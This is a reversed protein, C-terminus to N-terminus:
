TKVWQLATKIYDPVILLSAKKDLLEFACDAKNKLMYQQVTLSVRGASWLGDCITQNSNYMAIEFTRVVNDSDAFVEINTASTYASYRAVCNAQYDGDNDRIVATKIGLLIALDLYRKFSTGGVSIIHVDNDEPSNGIEKQYFNEMLIFEADGEVLIVKKSLVFELINNDPAKMFFKATGEDLDNLLIPAGSNSNVLISKRLDLRTSIMNNHTAIILQKNDTGEIRKVLKKMNVHSLHNEPEEILVCDLSREDRLAFETKIFCQKGRGKNEITVGDEALTLDSELNSKSDTKAIFDYDGTRSNLATLHNNKYDEKSKRYENKHKSQEVEDTSSQYVAKIYERAAYDNSMKSDDILIHSVFQRYGTYAHDAFTKFTIGYYEFPFNSDPQALIQQIENSLEDKPECVMMLGDCMANDSNNRGNTDSDGSDSLYVEIWLRPLNAYTKTGNLFNSIVDVNFLYEVGITEVKSRSGKLVLDIATLITSKGAENDGIIINLKEDLKVEFDTFRKFNHLKIKIIKSM